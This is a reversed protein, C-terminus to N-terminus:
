SQATLATMQEWKAEMDAVLKFQSRCRVLNHEPYHIKFYTDGELYDTLFRIGCEATMMKAGIPLCRIEEPTLQGGCGELFGELFARYMTLDLHIKSLDAEDEKATVAGSRISDGFDNAALGPMVTDLDIVCLARRTDKDLLVNNIKTDNHTVRTPLVGKANLDTLISYFDERAVAFAIEQRVQAARGLPDRAVADMLRAFRKPTNHFDPITESLQEVPFDKLMNQFRGFALACQRFDETSEPTKLCLSDEVFIYLRWCGGQADRYYASGERTCVLQMVERPDGAFGRLFSTVGQINQMVQDVDRFITTNIRQLIYHKEEGAGNLGTVRYTDNIHGDGWPICETPAVDTDFALFSAIM